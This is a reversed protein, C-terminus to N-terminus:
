LKSMLHDNRVVNAKIPSFQNQDNKPSLVTLLPELINHYNVWILETVKPIASYGLMFAM